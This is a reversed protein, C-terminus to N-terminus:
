KIKIGYGVNGSIWLPTNGMILGFSGFFLMFVWASANFCVNLGTNTKKCAQLSACSALYLKCFLPRGEGTRKIRFTPLKLFFRFSCM